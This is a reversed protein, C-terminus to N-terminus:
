WRGGREWTYCDSTPRTGAGAAAEIRAVDQADLEFGFLRRHQEVHAANRAGVIIGAVAPRQLVWRSAVEAVGVGHKAGLAHLEQLLLQLWEWGGSQGLVSAYKSLSYTNVSVDQPQKGLYKDTLFGGAVTGYPLLQV